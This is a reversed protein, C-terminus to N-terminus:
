IYFIKRNKVKANGKQMVKQYLTMFLFMFITQYLTMFPFMFATQYFTMAPFMFLFM